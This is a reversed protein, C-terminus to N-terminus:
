TTLIDEYLRFLSLQENEWNFDEKIAKRGNEGMVKAKDPYDLLDSIAKAYEDIDEPNVCIGFQYKEIMYENYPQRTMIVPIGMAMCEYVKTSLNEVGSYQGVNLLASACILSKKYVEMVKERSLFGLFEVNESEPMEKIEQEFEIPSLMGGLLVRAKAKSAALILHKIGRNYTLSGVTCITDPEKPTTPDYKDYMESLRPLNNVYAKRKGPLPFKGNVPCPFIVGDIKKLIRNEYSSYIVSLGKAMIRPLYPKIRIQERTLEHSDFIVTKGKRKLKIAFPLLEPDHLHYIDCDLALAKEYASKASQTMRKIRSKPVEGFGIIHIGEKDHSEGREVLYVDYGAQNLSLCEKYFIRVDEVGHASTVHCVKIKM